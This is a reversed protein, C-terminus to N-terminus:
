SVCRYILEITHRGYLTLEGKTGMYKVGKVKVEEEVEKGRTVLM